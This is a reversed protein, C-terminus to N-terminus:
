GCLNRCLGEFCGGGGPCSEDENCEPFCGSRVIVCNDVPGCAACETSQGTGEPCPTACAIETCATVDGDICSCTNCSTPDPVDMSGNPYVYDGVACAGDPGADSGDAGM